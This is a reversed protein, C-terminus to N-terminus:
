TMSFVPVTCSLQSAYNASSIKWYSVCVHALALLLYVGTSISTMYLRQVVALLMLAIRTALSFAWVPVEGAGWGAMTFKVVALRSGAGTLEPQFEPDSGIVKVGVMICYFVTNRAASSSVSRNCNIPCCFFASWSGERITRKGAHGHRCGVRQGILFLSVGYAGNDHCLIASLTSSLDRIICFTFCYRRLYVYAHQRNVNARKNIISFSM